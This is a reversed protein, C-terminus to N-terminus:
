ELLSINSLTYLNHLVENHLKEGGEYTWINEESERGLVGKIGHVKTNVRSWSLPLFKSTIFDFSTITYNRIFFCIFLTTHPFLSQLATEIYLYGCFTRYVNM